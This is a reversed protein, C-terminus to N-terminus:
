APLKSERPLKRKWHVLTHLHLIPDSSLNGPDTNVSGLDGGAIEMKGANSLSYGMGQTMRGIILVQGHEPCSM